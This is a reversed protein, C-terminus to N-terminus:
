STKSNLEVRRWFEEPSSRLMAEVNAKATESANTAERCVRQLMSPGKYRLYTNIDTM